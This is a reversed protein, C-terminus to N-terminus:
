QNLLSSCGEWRYIFYGKKNKDRKKNNKQNKGSQTM